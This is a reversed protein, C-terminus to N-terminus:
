CPVLVPVYCALPTGADEHSESLEADTLEETNTPDSADAKLAAILEPFDYNPGLLLQGQSIAWNGSRRDQESAGLRGGAEAVDLVSRAKGESAYFGTAIWGTVHRAMGRDDIWDKRWGTHGDVPRPPSVLQPQPYGLANTEYSYGSIDRAADRLARRTACASLSEFGNEVSGAARCEQRKQVEYQRLRGVYEDFATRGMAQENPRLGTPDTQNVPDNDTYHYPNNVTTTGDVGDLPDPSLFTGSAPDYERNRLHILTGAHLESRYGYDIGASAPGGNGWPDYTTAQTADSTAPTQLASGYIDHVIRGTCDTGTACDVRILDPGYVATTENAQGPSGTWVPQPVDLTTDWVINTTDTVTGDVTTTLSSFRGDGRTARAIDTVGSPSTTREGTLNGHAGWFWQHANAGGNWGERVRRGSGDYQYNHNVGAVTRRTLQSAADWQYTTTTTGVTSTTRRGLEDYAYTEDDGTTRDVELLQGADDYDYTTTVGGTAETAIRGADDYTVATTKTPTGGAAEEYTSVLGTTADLTWARSHGGIQDQDILNGDDDYTNDAVDVWTGNDDRQVKSLNGDTDYVNKYRSGDPYTIVTRRGAADWAWALDESGTGDAGTVQGTKNYYWLMTGSSDVMTTRRGEEDYTYATPTGSAYTVSTIQGAADYGYTETRGAGDTRVDLRGLNDYTYSTTRDLPDIEATVRDALDYHWEREGTKADVRLVRNGRTDYDYTTERGLPDTVTTVRGMGDHDWTVTGGTADTRTALDGRPSYTNTTLGSAPDDVTLVQGADDYTTTTVRGEPSTETVVRGDADYAYTTTAGSPQETAILRGATDYSYSTTRGTADTESALRGGPTYTQTTVGGRADTTSVRRGSTDYAFTTSEGTRDVTEEVLGDVNYVTTTTHGLPDTEATIRGWDDYTTETFDGNENTLKTLRGETDYTYGTEVGTPDTTSTLRGLAGYTHTTTALQAPVSPDGTQEVVVDGSRDMKTISSVGTPDTVTRVESIESAESWGADGARAVEYVTTNGAPDTVSATEGDLFYSYVTALHDVGDFLPDRIEIVRGEADLVEVTVAGGPSETTRSEVAAPNTESWGPDGAQATEYTTTLATTGDFTTSTAMTRDSHYTYETVVGDPDTVSEVLGALGGSFYTYTTTSLGSGPCPTAPDTSATDCPVSVTTPQRSSGSYTYSTTLGKEDTRTAVRNDIRATPDTDAVVYTLTAMTRTATGATETVETVRGAADYTHDTVVDSRSGASAPRDGDWARSVSQGLADTIAVVEGAANHEYVTVDGSANNTATTFGPAPTLGGLGDPQQDYAFDLEDGTDLTQNAVRGDTDYTNEVVVKSRNADVADLIRTIAVGNTEYSRIGYTGSAQGIAHPRSATALHAGAFAADSYTFDVQRGDSTVARDVYGDGGAVPQNAANYSTDDTFTVQYGSASSLTDPVPGNWTVTVAPSGPVEVATLQGANNFRRVTGDPNTVEWDNPGDYRLSIRFPEVPAWAGNADSVFTTREGTSLTLTGRAGDPDYGPAAPDEAVLEADLSSRWGSGFLGPSAGLSNYSRALTAPGAGPPAVLDTEDHRLNGSATDVPDGHWGRTPDPQHGFDAPDRPLTVKRIRRNDRDAVWMTSADPSLAIGVIDDFKGPNDDVYGASGSIGAVVVPDGKGFGRRREIEHRPPGYLTTSYPSLAIRRTPWRTQIMTLSSGDLRVLAPTYCCGPKDADNWSIYIKGDIGKDMDFVPGRVIPGRAALATGDRAQAPLTSLPIRYIYPLYSSAGPAEAASYYLFGDEEDIFFGGGVFNTNKYYDCCIRSLM